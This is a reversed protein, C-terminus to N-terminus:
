GNRSDTAVCTRSIKYILVEHTIILQIWTLISTGAMYYYYPLVCHQGTVNINNYLVRPRAHNVWHSAQISFKVM